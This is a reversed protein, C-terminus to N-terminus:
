LLLDSLICVQSLHLLGHLGQVGEQADLAPFGVVAGYARVRLVRAELVDGAAVSDLANPARMMRKRLRTVLETLERRSYRRDKARNPKLVSLAHRLQDDSVLTASVLRQMIISRAEQEIEEKTKTENESSDEQVWFPDNEDTDCAQEVRRLMETNSEKRLRTFQEMTLHSRPDDPTLFEVGKYRVRCDSCNLLDGCGLLRRQCLYPWERRQTADTYNDDLWSTDHDAPMRVELDVPGRCTFDSTADLWVSQRFSLPMARRYRDYVEDLEEDTPFGVVPDRLCKLLEESDVSDAERSEARRSRKQSKENWDLDRRARSERPVYRRDASEIEPVYQGARLVYKQPRNPKPLRNQMKETRVTAGKAISVPDKASFIFEAFFCLNIYWSLRACRM